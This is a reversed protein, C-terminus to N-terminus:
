SYYFNPGDEHEKKQSSSEYNYIVDDFIVFYEDM